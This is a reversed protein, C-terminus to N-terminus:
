DRQYKVKLNGLKKTNKKDIHKIKSSDLPIECTSENRLTSYRSRCSSGLKAAHMYKFKNM